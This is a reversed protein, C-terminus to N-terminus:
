YDNLYWLTNYYLQYFYVVNFSGIVLYNEYIEVDVGMLSTSVSEDNDDIISFPELIMIEYWDEFNSTENKKFIYAGGQGVNSDKRFAGVVLYDNTMSVSIGFDMDEYEDEGEDSATIIAVQVFKSSTNDFKFIYAKNIQYDGIAMYKNDKTISVDVGFAVSANKDDSVLVDTEQWIESNNINSVFKEYIFVKDNRPDGIAIYKDTMEVSVASTREDWKFIQIENWNDESSNSAEKKFLYARSVDVSGVLIYNDYMKVNFGFLPDDDSTLFDNADSAELRQIQQWEYTSNDFKYIYVCGEWDECQPAGVVAYNGNVSVSRGFDNNANATPSGSAMLKDVYQVTSNVLDFSVVLIICLFLVM